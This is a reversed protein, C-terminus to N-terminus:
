LGLTHGLMMVNRCIYIALISFIPVMFSRQFLQQMNWYCIFPHSRSLTTTCHPRFQFWVQHCILSVYKPLSITGLNKFILAIESIWWLRGGVVSTILLKVFHFVLSTVMHKHAATNCRCRYRRRWPQWRHAANFTDSLNQLSSPPDRSFMCGGVGVMPWLSGYLRHRCSAPFMALSGECGRWLSNSGRGDPLLHRRM